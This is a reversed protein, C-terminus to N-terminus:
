SNGYFVIVMNLKMILKKFMRVIILIYLYEILIVYVKGDVCMLGFDCYFCVYNWNFWDCGFIM